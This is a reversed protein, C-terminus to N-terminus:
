LLQGMADWVGEGHKLPNLPVCCQLRLLVASSSADTLKLNSEAHNLRETQEWCLSRPWATSGTVPRRALAYIVSASPWLMLLDM